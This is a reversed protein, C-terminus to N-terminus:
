ENCKDLYSQNDAAGWYPKLISTTDQKNFLDKAKEFYPKAKITGGGYFKPKNFILIGQLYYIRPNDPNAKKATELNSNVLDLYKKWRNAPDVSYRAFAVYAALMYTEGPSQNLATTQKLYDDAKDLYADQRKADHLNLAVIADSYAAYYNAGWDSGSKAAINEFEAAAVVKNAMVPSLLKEYAATLAVSVQQANAQVCAIGILLIAMITRKM